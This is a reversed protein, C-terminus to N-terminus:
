FDADWIHDRDWFPFEEHAGADIIDAGQHEFLRVPSIVPVVLHPNSFVALDPPESELCGPREDATLVPCGSKELIARLHAMRQSDFQPPSFLIVKGRFGEPQAADRYAQAHSDPLRLPATHIRSQMGKLANALAPQGEKQAQRINLEILAPVLHDLEDLYEKMQDAPNPSTRLNQLIGAARLIQDEEYHLVPESQIRALLRSAAETSLPDPEEEDYIAQETKALAAQREALMNGPSCRLAQYYLREATRAGGSALYLNGVTVLADVDEPYDQLIAFWTSVADELRRDNLYTRGMIKRLKLDGERHVSIQTM